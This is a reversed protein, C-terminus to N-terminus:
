SSHSLRPPRGPSGDRIFRRNRHVYILVEVVITPIDRTSPEASEGWGEGGWGGRGKGGEGGGGGVEQSRPGRWYSKLSLEAKFATTQRM